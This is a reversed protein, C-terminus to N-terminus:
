TGLDLGQLLRLRPRDGTVVELADEGESRM